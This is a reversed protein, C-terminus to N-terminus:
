EESLNDFAFNITFERPAATSSILYVGDHGVAPQTVDRRPAVITETYRDGSSTRIIGL